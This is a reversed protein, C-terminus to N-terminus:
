PTLGRYKCVSAVNTFNWVKNQIGPDVWVIDNNPQFVYELAGIGSPRNSDLVLDEILEELTYSNLRSILESMTKCLM